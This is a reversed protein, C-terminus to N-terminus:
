LDGSLRWTGTNLVNRMAGIVQILEDVSSTVDIDDCKWGIRLETEPTSTERCNDSLFQLGLEVVKEASHRGVQHGWVQSKPPSYQIM